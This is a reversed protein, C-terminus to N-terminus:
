IDKPVLGRVEDTSAEPGLIQRIGVELVEDRGQLIGEITPKAEVDPVIGIRQTPRKDPYFVGIGSIGTSIGGPLYFTSMNGDAGATTSGVVVAGPAVRFAMSTYEAQSLSVEDVLVVVKGTYHPNAPVLQVPSTYSFAGPHALSAVTFRVFPTPERVLHRGLAFVVFASPYNRIDIIWGKTGAAQELYRPIDIIKVESLKLYAIDPSMLRFAPGPLDHQRGMNEHPITRLPVRKADITVVDQGRRVEVSVQGVPGNFMARGIDFLRKAENSAAYYPAWARLLEAIPVRDIATVIDGPHFALTPAGHIPVVASVVPQNGVMRIVVPLRGGGTPPRSSLTNWLNAHSDAIRTTFALLERKYTEADPALGIRPIFEVLIDDWNGDVLDRYPFWYQIINWYRFLALLQYGPDPYAIEPYSPENQFQPNGVGSALSVFYQSKRVTQDARLAALKSAIRQDSLIPDNLWIQQPALHVDGTIRKELSLSDGGLKDIWAVLASVLAERDPSAIIAPMIRFLEYDWHYVGATVRPHHYKLFGWVKALAALNKIQTSTLSQTVVRSGRDYEQDKELVTLVPETVPLEWIPKGDVLLQLDDAWTKGSGTLLVGAYVFRAKPDIPVTITYEKWDTTGKLQQRSMNDFGVTVGPLSDLRLWLGAFGGVDETKMFGRLEIKRGSFDIPLRLFVTSIAGPEAERLDLRLAGTGRYVIESDFGVSDPTRSIWGNPLKNTEGREFSLTEALEADRAPQTQAHALGCLLAFGVIHLCTM